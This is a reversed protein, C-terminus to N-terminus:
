AIYLLRYCDRCQLLKDQRLMQLDRPTISYFCADCAENVVSIVPNSVRGKMNVYMNLWEQPIHDQKVVRDHTLTDLEKQLQFIQDEYSKKQSLLMQLRDQYDKHFIDFNKQALELKNWLALLKQEHFVREENVVLSEKQLSKFEKQNSILALKNKMDTEKDDLVKMYLEKEDVAKRAQVAALKMEALDQDLQDIKKLIASHEQQIAHIDHEIKVINQDFTVLDIFKQFEVSKVVSGKSFYFNKM